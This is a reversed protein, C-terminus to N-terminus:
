HPLLIANNLTIKFETGKEIESTCEILGDHQQIVNYVFALGLGHGENSSDHTHFRTYKQFLYPIDSAPIGKGQDCISIQIKQYVNLLNSDINVQIVIMTNSLSYKISNEILNFLARELLSPEAVLYCTHERLADLNIKIQINKIQALPWARDSVQQLLTDLSIERQEYTDSQARLLWVFDDALKLTASIQVRMQDITELGHKSIEENKRADAFSDNLQKEHKNVLHLLASQPARFDHSLLQLAHDRQQQLKKQWSIDVMTVIWGVLNKQKTDFNQFSVDFATSLFQASQARLLITKDDKLNHTNLNVEIGNNEIATLMLSPWDNVKNKEFYLDLSHYVVGGLIDNQNFLIKARENVLLLSGKTDTLFVAEPMAQITKTLLMKRNQEAKLGSDLSKLISQWGDQTADDQHLVKDENKYKNLFLFQARKNLQFVFFSFRRWNWLIYPVILAIFYPTISWYWLFKTQLFYSTATLLTFCAVLYFISKVPNLYWLCISWFVLLLFAFGLAISANIEKILKNKLIADLATAHLEIGPMLSYNSDLPTPYQDGIGAATAGILIHKGDFFELPVENNLIKEYSIKTIHSPNNSFPLFFPAQVSWQPYDALPQPQNENQILHIRNRLQTQSIFHQKKSVQSMKLALSPFLATNTNGEWLYSKRVKGDLELHILTHGLGQVSAKFAPIPQNLQLGGGWEEAAPLGNSSIPLYVPINLSRLQLLANELAQDQAPDQSPESFLINLAINNARTTSLKKLLEAHVSRPWPWLGIKELSTDDIAIIVVDRSAEQKQSLLITDYWWYNIHRVWDSQYNSYLIVISIVLCVLWEWHLRSLKQISKMM